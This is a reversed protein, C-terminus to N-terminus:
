PNFFFPYEKSLIRTRKFLVYFIAVNKQTEYTALFKFLICFLVNREKFSHLLVNHASRLLICHGVRCALSYKSKVSFTFSYISQACFILSYISKVCCVLPYKSSHLAVSKNDLNNVSKVPFIRPNEIRVPVNNIIM